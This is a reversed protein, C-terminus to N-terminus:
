IPQRGVFGSSGERRQAQFGIKGGSEGCRDRLCAPAALPQPPEHSCHFFTAPLLVDHDDPTAAVHGTPVPIGYRAFLLKSQYEHLNM